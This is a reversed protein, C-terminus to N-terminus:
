LTEYIIEASGVPMSGDTAGPVCGVQFARHSIRQNGRTGLTMPALVDGSSSGGMPITSREEHHQAPRVVECSLGFTYRRRHSLVAHPEHQADAALLSLRPEGFLHSYSV